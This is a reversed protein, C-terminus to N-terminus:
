AIKRSVRRGDLDRAHERRLPVEDARCRPDSKVECGTVSASLTEVVVRRVQLRRGDDSRGCVTGGSGGLCKLDHRHRDEPRGIDAGVALPALLSVDRRLRQRTDAASDEIRHRRRVVLGRDLNGAPISQLLFEPSSNPESLPLCSTAGVAGGRVLVETSLESIGGVEGRLQFAGRVL